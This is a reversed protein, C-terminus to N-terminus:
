EGTPKYKSYRCTFQVGTKIKPAPKGEAALETLYDALRRFHLSAFGKEIAEETFGLERCLMKYEPATTSPLLPIIKSDPTASALTGRLKPELTSDQTTRQVVMLGIIKAMIEKLANADKHSEDTLKELEHSLYGVDAAIAEDPIKKMEPMVRSYLAVGRDHIARLDDLYLQLEAVLQKSM